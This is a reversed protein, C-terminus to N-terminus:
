PSRTDFAVVEISLFPGDRPDKALVLQGRFEKGTVGGLYRVFLRRAREDGHIPELRVEFQKSADHGAADVFRAVVFEAPRRRDHDEIVLYQSTAKAAPQERQLDCTFSIKAFPKVEFDDVITGVAALKVQYGDTLDTDITVLARFPELKCDKPPTFAARLLVAEGAPELTFQLRDDPCHVPGFRVPRGPIDSQLTTLLEPHASRPVSAFDLIAFPKLRVPSDIAYRLLLPWQRRASGDSSGAPQLVVFARSDVPGLDVAEKQATDIQVRVVLVEGPQAAFAATPGAVPRERGAGDRLLLQSRACTCDASVGVAVYDAGLARTDLVFDHVRDKGHPITGFDFFQTPLPGQAAPEHGGCASVLGGCAFVPLGLLTLRFTRM